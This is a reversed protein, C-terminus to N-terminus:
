VLIYKLIGFLALCIYLILFLLFSIRWLLKLAKRFQVDQKWKWQFFIIMALIVLLLILIIGIFNRNFIMALMLWVSLIYFVTTWNVAKHLAKMSNRHRLSSLFYVIITAVIPATIFFALTYILYELM